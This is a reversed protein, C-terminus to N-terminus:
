NANNPPDLLWGHKIWGDVGSPLDDPKLIPLTSLEVVGTAKNYTVQEVYCEDFITCDKAFELFCGTGPVFPLEDHRVLVLDNPLHMYIVVKFM